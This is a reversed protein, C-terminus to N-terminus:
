RPGCGLSGLLIRVAGLRQTTQCLQKKKKKGPCTINLIKVCGPVNEYLELAEYLFLLVSVAHELGHLRGLRGRQM